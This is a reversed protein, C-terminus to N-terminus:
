DWGSSGHLFLVTTVKARTPPADAFRGSFVTTGTVSAPLVLTAQAVAAALSQDTHQWAGGKVEGAPPSSQAMAADGLLVCAFVLGAASYRM